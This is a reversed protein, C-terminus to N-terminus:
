EHKDPLAGLRIIGAGHKEILLDLAALAHRTRGDYLDRDAAVLDCLTLGALRYRRGVAVLGRLARQVERWMPPDYDLPQPFRRHRTTITFSSDKLKVTFARAALGETRLDHTLRALFDRLTEGLATLDDTDHEFTTEHSISKPARDAVVAEGDFGRALAQLHYLRGGWHQRLSPEFRPHLLDGISRVGLHDLLSGTKPGIGPLARVPLPALFESETGPEVLALGDPKSADAAVKAVTKSAALAVTCRLGTEEFLAQKVALGLRRPDPHLTQLATTDAYFEDISTWATAPFFCATVARMRQHLRRYLPRDPPVVILGPCLRLAHATPMAARVGFRRAPYSAATVIGRPPPGGVAVPKGALGPEAVVAASAYMADVDGFLIQRVWRAM